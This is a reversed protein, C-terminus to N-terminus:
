DPGYPPFARKDKDLTVCVSQSDVNLGLGLVFRFYLLCKMDYDIDDPLLVNKTCSHLHLLVASWDQYPILTSEMGTEMRFCRFSDYREALSM